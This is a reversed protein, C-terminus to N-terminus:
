KKDKKEKKEPEKKVEAKAAPAAASATAGEVPTEAGEEAKAEKKKKSILKRNAVKPLGFVSKEGIKWDREKELRLLRELRSLVNRHRGGTIGSTFSRHLSM